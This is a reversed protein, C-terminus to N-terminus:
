KVTNMIFVPDFDPDKVGGERVRVIFHLLYNHLIQFLDGEEGDVSKIFILFLM